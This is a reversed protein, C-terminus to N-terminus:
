LAEGLLRVSAQWQGSKAALQGLRCKDAFTLLDSEEDAVEILYGPHCTAIRAGAEGGLTQRLRRVHNRLTVRASDPPESEWMEDILADMSVVRNPQILLAGLVQRQRGAPVSILADDHKILLPGLLGFWM